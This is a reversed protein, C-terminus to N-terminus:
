KKYRVVIPNDIVRNSIKNNLEYKITRTKNKIVSLNKYLNNYDPAPYEKFLGWFRRHFVANRESVVVFFRNDGWSIIAKKILAIYM